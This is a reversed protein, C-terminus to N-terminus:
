FDSCGNQKDSAVCSSLKPRSKVLSWERALVDGEQVASAVTVGPAACMAAGGMNHDYLWTDPRERTWDPRADVAGFLYNTWTGPVVTLLYGEASTFTGGVSFTGPRAIQSFESDPSGSIGNGSDGLILGSISTRFRPTVGFPGSGSGITVQATPQQLYIFHNDGATASFGAASSCAGGFACGYLNPLSGSGALAGRNEGIWTNAWIQWFSSASITQGAPKQLRGGTVLVASGDTATVPQDLTLDGKLNRIFVSGAQVGSVGDVTGISLNDANVFSFTQAARGAVVHPANAPNNLLVSGNRSSALLQESTLTGTDTQTIQGDALLTLTGNTVTLPARLDISGGSGEAQLTLQTGSAITTSGMGVISASQQVGGLMLRPTLLQNITAQTVLFNSISIGSGPVGLDLGLQISTTTHDTLDGTASVGGPRLNVSVLGSLSSDVFSFAPLSLDNTAARILLQNGASVKTGNLQMGFASGGISEGALSVNGTTSNIVVNSGIQFSGARLTFVGTDDGNEEELPDHISGFLLTGGLGDQAAIVRGRLDVNGGVTNISTYDLSLGVRPALDTSGEGAMGILTIDGNNSSFSNRRELIDGGVDKLIRTTVLGNTGETNEGRIFIDGQNTTLTVGALGVGFSGLNSAGETRGRIVIEGGNLGTAAGTADITADSLDIGRYDGSAFGNQLDNQGYFYVSGGGTQINVGSFAIQASSSFPAGAQYNSDTNFFVNLPGDTSVISINSNPDTGKGMIWGNANFRLDLPNTGTDRRIKVNPAIFINENAGDSSATGTEISVNNGANLAASIVSDQITSGSVPVFATTSDLPDLCCTAPVVRIEFPNIKWTGALQGPAGSALVTLGALDLAVASTEIGGGAGSGVGRAQLAGYARLSQGGQVNLTGGMGDVRADANVTSGQALAATQTALVEVSGGGFAGGVDVVATDTLYLGSGSIKVTGGKLGAGGSADLTGSIEARQSGVDLVIEGGRQVMSHARLMGQQNVVTQVVSNADAQIAVRGGDAQVVGNALNQVLAQSAPNGADIRFTTLGDGQFDVTLQRASVLAATGGDANITGGNIVNAGLLAVTGGPAARLDGLNIVQAQNADARSFKWNGANFDDNSIDLTSAVLGGTSVRAGPGFLVGNPNVLFVRGNATLSGVISSPLAGTVRNLMISSVGPQTISVSEQPGISFSSWNVIARDSSQILQLEPLPVQNFSQTVAGSVPNFGEPLALALGPAVLCALALALPHLDFNGNVRRYRGPGVQMAGNHCTKM